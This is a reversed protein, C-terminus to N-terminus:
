KGSAMVPPNAFPGGPARLSPDLQMWLNMRSVDYWDKWFARGILSPDDYNKLALKGAVYAPIAKLLVDDPAISLTGSSTSILAPTAAGTCAITVAPSPTPYLGVHWEGSRYWYTPTGSTSVYSLNYVRLEPEGCHILPVGGISVTIPHWLLTNHIPNLRSTTASISITAQEYICTRCMEAAAENIYDAITSDSAVTATGGIGNALEGVVSTNTENLLKLAENRLVTFGLAM